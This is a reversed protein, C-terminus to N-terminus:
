IYIYCHCRCCYVGLERAVVKVVCLFKLCAVAWEERFRRRADLKWTRWIVYRFDPNEKDTLDEFAYAHAIKEDETGTPENALAAAAENRKAKNRRTLITRTIVLFINSLAYHCFHATFGKSYHPADFSEFIKSRWLISSTYSLLPFVQPSTM